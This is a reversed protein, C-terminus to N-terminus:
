SKYRSGWVVVLKKRNCVCNIYYLTLVSERLSMLHYTHWLCSMCVIVTYVPVNIFQTMYIMYVITDLWGVYYCNNARSRIVFACRVIRGWKVLTKILILVSVARQVLMINKIKTSSKNTIVVKINDILEGLLELILEQIKLGM